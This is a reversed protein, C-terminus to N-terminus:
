RDVGEGRARRGRGGAFLTVVGFLVAIGAALIRVIRVTRPETM